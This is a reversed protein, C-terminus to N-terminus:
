MSFDNERKKDGEHRELHSEETSCLICNETVLGNQNGKIEVTHVFM